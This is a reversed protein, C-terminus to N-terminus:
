DDYDDEDFEDEVHDESTSYRSRDELWDELDARRYRVARSSLKHYRPGDNSRVRWNSLTRPSVGLYQAAERETLLDSM